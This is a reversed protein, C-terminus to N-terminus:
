SVAASSSRTKGRLCTSAHSLPIKPFIFFLWSAAIVSVNSHSTLWRSVLLRDEHEIYSSFFFSVKPQLSGSSEQAEGREFGASCDSWRNVVMPCWSPRHAPASVLGPNGESGNGCSKNGDRLYTCPLTQRTYTLVRRVYLNRVGYPKPPWCVGDGCIGHAVYHQHHFSTEVFRARSPHSQALEEILRQDGRPQKKRPRTTERDFKKM